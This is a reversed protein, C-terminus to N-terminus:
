FLINFYWIGIQLPPVQLLDDWDLSDLLVLNTSSRLLDWRLIKIHRLGAHRESVEWKFPSEQPRAWFSHLTKAPLSCLVTGVNSFCNSGRSPEAGGIHNTCRLTFTYDIMTLQASLEVAVCLCLSNFPEQIKPKCSAFTLFYNDWTAPFM